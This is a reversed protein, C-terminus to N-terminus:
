IKENVVKTIKPLDARAPASLGESWAGKILTLRPVPPIGRENQVIASSIMDIAVAGHLDHRQNFGAIEPYELSTDSNAFAVDQPVRWQMQRIAQWVIDEGLVIEPKYERLWAQIRPIECATPREIVFIELRHTPALHKQLYYAPYLVGHNVRLDYSTSIVVAIRRYGLALIKQLALNFGHITDVAVRHLDPDVLSYGLAVSSFSSWDFEALCSTPHIIGPIVVGMINRTRLVNLLRRATLHPENIWITELYFGLAHAREVAGEYHRQMYSPLDTIRASNQGSVLFAIGAQQAPPRSLRLHAMYAAALPNPQWGMERAVKFIRERTEAPIKDRGRLAHSVTSQNYGCALAIERTTPRRTAM